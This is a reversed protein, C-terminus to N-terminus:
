DAEREGELMERLRERPVLIRKGIRVSPIVGEGVMRYAYNRSIGLYRAAEEVSMTAPAAATASM